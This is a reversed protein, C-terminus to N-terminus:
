YQVKANWSFGIGVADLVVRCHWGYLPRVLSRYLQQVHLDYLLTQRNDGNQSAARWWCIKPNPGWRPSSIREAGYMLM